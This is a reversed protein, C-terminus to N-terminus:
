RMLQRLLNNRMDAQNIEPISDIEAPGATAIGNALTVTGVCEDSENDGGVHAKVALSPCKIALESLTREVDSVGYDREALNGTANISEAAWNPLGCVGGCVLPHFNEYNKGPDLAARLTPVESQDCTGTLQVRTWNGM